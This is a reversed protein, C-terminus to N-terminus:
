ANTRRKEEEHILYEKYKIQNSLEEIDWKLKCTLCYNGDKKPTFEENCKKCKKLTM